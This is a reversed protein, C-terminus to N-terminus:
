RDDPKTEGVRLAIEVTGFRALPRPRRGDGGEAKAVLEALPDGTRLGLVMYTLWEAFPRSAPGVLDAPIQKASAAHHRALDEVLQTPVIPVGRDLLGPCQFLYFSSGTQRILDTMQKPDLKFSTALGREPHAVEKRSVDVVTAAISARPTSRIM